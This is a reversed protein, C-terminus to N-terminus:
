LCSILIMRTYFPAHPIPLFQSWYFTKINTTKLELYPVLIWSVVAIELFSLFLIKSIQEFSLM